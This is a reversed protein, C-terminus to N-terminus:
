RAAGKRTRVAAPAVLNRERVLAALALADALLRIVSELDERNARYAAAARRAAAVAVPWRGPDCHCQDSPRETM